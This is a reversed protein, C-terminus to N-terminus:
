KELRADEPRWLTHFVEYIGSNKVYPKEFGFHYGMFGWALFAHEDIMKKQFEHILRIKEDGDATALADYVLQSADEPFWLDVFQGGNPTMNGQIAVAWDGVAGYGQHMMGEWGTETDMTWYAAPSVINIEADIGVDSFYGQMATFISKIPEKSSFSLKTEFGNDYGAEALLQRAKEPDYPYGVVDPNYAWAEPPAGQNIPIDYGFTIATMITEWDISHSIARRVRIDSFPSNPDASDFVVGFPAWPVKILNYKGTEDLPSVESLPVKAIVDAEDSRFTLVATIPDQIIRINIADLLPKGDQWYDDFKEYEILIDPQWSVFKFPGTGVPNQGITDGHLEIATPSSMAGEAGCMQHLFGNNWKTLNVQVTYDDTVEVSSVNEMAPRGAEILKEFNFKVAEANFDTGDHFKVGKRITFTISSLDDAIEWGTALWPSPLGASDWRLLTESVPREYFQSQVNRGMAGYGLSTAGIATSVITLTGGHNAAFGPVSAFLLAAIAFIRVLSRRM